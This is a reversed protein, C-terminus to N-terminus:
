EDGNESSALSLDQTMKVFGDEIAKNFDIIVLANNEMLQQLEKKAHAYFEAIKDYHFVIHRHAAFYLFDKEDKTLFDSVEIENVLQQFKERDFLESIKPCDGTIEYKPSAVKTSYENTSSSQELTKNFFNPFINELGWPEFNFDNEKLFSFESELKELNWTSDSSLKNDLIRYAKKKSEGLGEIKIVPCYELGLKKAAELRGHGALIINKEDILIPQNFGFEAISNAIRDIQDKPHDKNNFEYPILSETKINVIQLNKDLFETIQQSGVEKSKKKGVIGGGNGTTKRPIAAM